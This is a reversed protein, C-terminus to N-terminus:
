CVIWKKTKSIPRSEIIDVMQGEKFKNEPSHVRYKKTKSVIKKYVDHLFSRSVSVVITKDMKSSVVVGRLIKKPM